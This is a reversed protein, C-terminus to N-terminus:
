IQGPGVSIFYNITIASTNNVCVKFDGPFQVPTPTSPSFDATVAGSTSNAYVRKYTAGGDTSERLAYTVVATSATTQRGNLEVSKATAAAHYPGVCASGNPPLSGSGSMTTTTQASAGAVFIVSLLFMLTMVVKQLNKM